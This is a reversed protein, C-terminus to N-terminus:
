KSQKLGELHIKLQNSDTEFKLIRMLVPTSEYPWHENLLEAFRVFGHHVPMVQIQPFIMSLNNMQLWKDPLRLSLMKILTEIGYGQNILKRTQMMFDVASEASESDSRMGLLQSKLSNRMEQPVMKLLSAISKGRIGSTLMCQGLQNNWNKQEDQKVKRTSRINSEQYEAAHEIAQKVRHKKLWQPLDSIAWNDPFGPKRESLFQPNKDNTFPYEKLLMKLPYGRLLLTKGSVMLSKICINHAYVGFDPHFGGHYPEDCVMCLHKEAMYCITSNPRDVHSVSQRADASIFPSKSITDYRMMSLMVKTKTRPSTQEFKNLAHCTSFAIILPLMETFVTSSGDTYRAIKSMIGSLDFLPRSSPSSWGPQDMYSSYDSCEGQINHRQIHTPRHHIIELFIRSREESIELNIKQIKFKPFKKGRFTGNGV